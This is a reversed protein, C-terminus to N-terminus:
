RHPAMWFTFAAMAALVLLVLVAVATIIRWGLRPRSDDGVRVASVDTLRTGRPLPPDRLERWHEGCVECDPPEGDRGRGTPPM